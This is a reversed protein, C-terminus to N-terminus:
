ELLNFINYISEKTFPKPIIGDIHFNYTFESENLATMFYIKPRIDCKMIGSTTYKDHYQKITDIGNLMPMLVDMFIVHPLEKINNKIIDDIYKLFEEGGAFDKIGDKQIGINILLKVAFKRNIITDDVICVRSNKNHVQYKSISQSCLSSASSISVSTTTSPSTLLNYVNSSNSNNSHSEINVKEYPVIFWFTSGKNLESEYKLEIDIKNLLKKVTYIGIGFSLIHDSKLFPAGLINKIDDSMGKGNDKVSFQLRDNSVKKIELNIVGNQNSYKISNSLLNMLSHRIINDYIKVAHLETINERNYVIKISENDAELKYFNLLQQIFDDLVVTNLKTNLNEHHYKYTYLIDHVINNIHTLIINMDKNMKTDEKIEDNLLLSLTHLPTKLQHSLDTLMYEKELYTQKNLIENNKIITIDNFLWLYGTGYTFKEVHYWKGAHFLESYNSANKIINKQINIWEINDKGRPEDTCIHVQFKRGMCAMCIIKRSYQIDINFNNCFYENAFIINSNKTTIILSICVSKTIMEFMYNTTQKDQINTIYSIFFLLQKHLDSVDEFTKIPNYNESSNALGYIGIIKNNIILPIGIIKNIVPHGPPLRLYNNNENYIVYRNTRIIKGFLTDTDADFMFKHSKHINYLENSIRNKSIDSLALTELYPKNDTHYVVKGILGLESKTKILLNELINKIITRLDGIEINNFINQETLHKTNLFVNKYEKKDSSITQEDDFIKDFYTINSTTNTKEVSYTLSENNYNESFDDNIIKKIIKNYNGQYKAEHTHTHNKVPHIKSNKAGMIYM